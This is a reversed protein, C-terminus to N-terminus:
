SFIISNDEKKEELNEEKELNELVDAEPDKEKVAPKIAAVAV